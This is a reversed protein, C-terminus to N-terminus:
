IYRKRKTPMGHAPCLITFPYSRVIELSQQALEMDESWEPNAMRFVDNVFSFLDGGFIVNHYLICVHGESHGPTPIIEFEGIKYDNPYMRFEPLQPNLDMFMQHKKGFRRKIGSIYVMEKESVWVDCGTKQQLWAANGIHDLDVHTLLIQKINNQSKCLQRLEELIDQGFSPFGTDILTIGDNEVIAYVMSYYEHAKYSFKKRTAELMFVNEQIRLYNVM